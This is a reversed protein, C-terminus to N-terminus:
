DRSLLAIFADQKVAPSCYFGQYMDAGCERIYKLQELTEVGEVVTKMNFTKAMNIMLQMLEKNSDDELSQTFNRDLKLNNVPLRKLYTISSYGTGFDDIAVKFGKDKLSSIKKIAMEIDEILDDELIELEIQSTEINYSNVVKTIQTEFNPNLLESANINISIVGNFLARNTQLFDCVSELALATIKPILDINAAAELFSGPYLLGKTPHQWRILAEAGVIADTQVDVKPQLYFQFENNKIALNLHEELIALKKLRLEISKDFFVYRNKGENKAQYMATDAHIIVDEVSNEYNPFIKIGITAGINVKYDNFIFERSLEQIIKNSKEKVQLAATPRKSDMNLLIIAFEDGSMRSFIDEERLLKQIRATVAILIKDGIAHGYTDNVAKFNDLDIFLFAHTFNHRKAKSFEEQLRRMLAKRNLLGTLFDHDAQHEALEQANKLDSIDLFQAIYNTTEGKDNKIATISLRELYIEGNKRKNYIEGSWKGVSNLQQWMNKYFTDEHKFSKLISTNKGLVEKETYGTISTFATNVQIITGDLSTLTMAEHSDFTYSSIRLKELLKQEKTILRQLIYILFFYSLISLIWIFATVYLAEKTRAQTEKAQQISENIIDTSISQIHNIYKSSISFCQKADEQMLKKNFFNKKFIKLQLNLKKDMNKNYIFLDNSSAYMLFKELSDDELEQLKRIYEFSNKNCDHKLIHNFMHARQLGSFEKLKQIELFAETRNTTSNLFNIFLKITSTIEENIKSYYALEENLRINSSLVQKRKDAINSCLNLITQMRRQDKNELYSSLQQRTQTQLNLYYTFTELSVATNDYQLQLQAKLEKDQSVLYGASLGREVQINHMLQILTSTINASLVNAQSLELEQYKSNVFSSSFYILALMPISFIIIIKAQLSKYNM